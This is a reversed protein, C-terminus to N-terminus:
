SDRRSPRVQPKRDRWEEATIEWIESPLRGSVYDREETAVLRMGQKESIRRSAANGVAKPARLVPFGLTNFWFDTVAECAESMLGQRQWALGLWFGRNDNEKKRLDISGVIQDPASKLRLTWHWAEGRQVAPLALDRIFHLAGDAPYPWPVQAALYRVIEWHPFLVQIQEADALELPRLLLRPTELPATM